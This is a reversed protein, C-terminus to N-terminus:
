KEGEEITLIKKVGDIEQATFANEANKWYENYESKCVVKGFEDKVATYSPKSVLWRKDFCAYVILVADKGTKDSMVSHIKQLKKGDVDESMKEKFSKIPRGKKKPQQVSEGQGDNPQQDPDPQGDSLLSIGTHSDRADFSGKEVIDQLAEMIHLATLNAMYLYEKTDDDAKTCSKWKDDTWTDLISCQIIKQGYSYITVDLTELFDPWKICFRSLLGLITEKMVFLRDNPHRLLNEAVEMRLRDYIWSKEFPMDSLQAIEKLAGGVRRQYLENYPFGDDYRYALYEANGVADLANEIRQRVENTM